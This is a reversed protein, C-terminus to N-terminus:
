TTIGAALGSPPCNISPAAKRGAALLRVLVSARTHRLGAHFEWSPSQCGGSWSLSATLSAICISSVQTADSSAM